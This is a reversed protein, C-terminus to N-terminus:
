SSASDYHRLGIKWVKLMVVFTIVLAVLMGVLLKYSNNDLLFYVPGSGILLIPFITTLIRRPIPHFIFEPWRGLRQFEMRLFNIGMGEVLWFMCVSIIVEITLMLSFALLIFFPLLCWSLTSLGVKIGFHVLLSGAALVSLVGTPRFWGFFTVFISHVPKLISYDFQGTKISESFEWFSTSLITMHCADVTLMFFLFFLLQDRQWSGILSIHDFIFTVNLGVATYFILDVLILLVFNTRFSMHVASGTEVFKWYVRLYHKITGLM